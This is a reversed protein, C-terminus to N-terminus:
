GVQSVQSILSQMLAYSPKPQGDFNLLGKEFIPPDPHPDGGIWGPRVRFDELAWYVAGSLYPHAAFVSMQSNIFANQFEYTGREEVPGDRNAEAGFESVILAQRPYCSRMEDLFGPLLSPDAIQADPGIYWGFYDNLGIIDLPRYAAQCGVAPYGAEALAVPRTPDLGHATAVAQRIYDAQAPGPKSSLENAISWIVISPHSGNDLLNERLMELAAPTAARIKTAKVQYMPIESWLMIGAEDALEELEPHLPYQSRILTAGLGRVENIFAQRQDNDIAFGDMPSDEQLGVGRFHLPAGNLLLHGGVVRISRIGSLLDYHGVPAGGIAADLTADYLYPSSPWWLTPHPVPLRATYIADAGPKITRTGLNLPISGYHATLQVRQPTAAYNHMDVRYDITAACTACPLQPLVQVSSFDARDVSRLYVERLLGGYNWWGGVPDGTTSSTGSPPLDSSTRRDDVRVVLRNPGARNLYAAPLAIEFPLFAGAHEGIRHGNLWVIATYNVSEFRVIWTLGSGASPLLFDKRYWAAAGTYSALSQDTANWANPVSVQTWGATSASTANGMGGNFRFLWTGGMLYRNSPGDRYLAGPTPAQAQYVPPQQGGATAAAALLVIAATLTVLRM